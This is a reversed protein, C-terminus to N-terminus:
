MKVGVQLEIDTYHSSFIMREAIGITERDFYRTHGVKGQLTLRYLPKYKLMLAAHIGKGYYSTSGFSYRVGREYSYLRSDYDDTNFWAANAYIELTSTPKYSASQAIIYGKTTEDFSLSCGEVQTRLSWKEKNYIALLRLRHDYKTLLAKEKTGETGKKENTENKTTKDRQKMKIRYRLSFSWCSNKNWTGTISNDWSYSSSSVLYKYWPFYAIDTYGEIVMSPTIDWRAGIYLGSENKVSGGDSFSSGFLANYQYTYYRQVAMLTLTTPAREPTHEPSHRPTRWPTRLSTRWTMSNITALHFDKDIATEGNLRLERWRYHYDASFNWFCKGRPYHLRYLQSPNQKGTKSYTPNIERNLWSYIASVGVGWRRREYSLHTGTTMMASNNKKGMELATRHYNSTLITSITSDANLTADIKRYSFFAAMQIRDSLSVMAAAGQFHKSDGVSSHPSFATLRRGVAALMGQKGLTFNNNLVLGLGFQGRFHGLIIQDLRGVHTVRLNFAYRDYGWRNHEGFFPEGASKGGSLNFTVNEGMRLSYRLSHSVPDGLYKGAYRNDGMYTHSPARQDGARYYTSVRATTVLSQRVRRLSQRLQGKAYWPKAAEDEAVLFCELYNRLNLDISEIMALEEISRMRGYRHIYELIDNIQNQDLGPIQMLEEQTVTNVDLPRQALENLHEYAEEMSVVAGEDNEYLATLYQEWSDNDAVAVAGK